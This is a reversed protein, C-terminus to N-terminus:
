DEEIVELSDIVKINKMYLGVNIKVADESLLDVSNDTYVCTVVYIKKNYEVIDGLSVPVDYNLYKNLKEEANKQDLLISQIYETNFMMKRDDKNVDTLIDNLTKYM